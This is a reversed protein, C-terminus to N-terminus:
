DLPVESAYPLSPIAGIRTAAIAGCRNAFQIARYLVDERVEAGAALAPINRLLSTIVGAMSADGCGTTDLTEVPEADLQVWAKGNSAAMGEPGLTVVIVKPGLTHLQAVGAKRNTEGTLMTLEEISVKLLDVHGMPELMRDRAQEVSSWLAPRYNPDYTVFCRAERAQELAYLTAGYAPESTLSLSGFHFVNANAILAADVDEVRLSQDAGPHRVFSFSPVGTESIAVFALTTPQEATSALGRTNVQETELVGRLMRGFADEGVMGIFASSVGLRRLGVAVNAPAGGPKPVFHEVGSLDAAAPQGMFDILIEGLCVVQPASM